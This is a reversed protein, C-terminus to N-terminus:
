HWLLSAVQAASTYSITKFQANFSPMRKNRKIKVGTKLASYILKLFGLFCISFLHFYNAMVWLFGSNVDQHRSEM